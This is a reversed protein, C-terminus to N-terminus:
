VRSSVQFNYKSRTIIIAVASFIFAKEMPLYIANLAIIIVSLKVPWKEGYM